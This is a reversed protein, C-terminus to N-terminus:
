AQGVQEVSTSWTGSEDLEPPPVDFVHMLKHISAFWAVFLLLEVIEHETFVRALRVGFDDDCLTGYALVYRDVTEVALRERDTLGERSEPAVAEVKQEDM